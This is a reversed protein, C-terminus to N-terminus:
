IRNRAQKELFTVLHGFKRDKRKREEVKKIAHIVTTHDKRGFARAIEILSAGCLKRCLYMAIHKAETIRRSRRDSLLESTSLAYYGAVFELIRQLDNKEKKEPLKEFGRLKILKIKGEIERVNRTNEMLYKLVREEARLGYEKLKERIIKLKTTSDLEVEVLVGGEFRSVLRDSVGKLKQPHRDSALVIQKELLYLTNFINFFEIQTREKGALFQVDDLLLLDVSRYKNRFENIRGKKLYEVMEEAFDNASSYIVRMGKRKAENGIAQLLHTKGTGVSGYIFVPNYLYGPNKLIERAVEYAFRNGEGVIFNEFTYRPNLFSGEEPVPPEKEKRERVEVRKKIETESLTELLTELWERYDRSPAIFVVREGEARVEFKKLFERAYSDASELTNIIKQLNM